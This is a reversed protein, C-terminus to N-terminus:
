ENGNWFYGDCIPSQTIIGSRYEDRIVVRPVHKDNCGINNKHFSNLKLDHVPRSQRGFGYDRLMDIIGNIVQYASNIEKLKELKEEVNSDGKNRDPHYKLVLAYYARKVENKDAEHSIGLIDYPNKSM